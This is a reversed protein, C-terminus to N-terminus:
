LQGILLAILENIQALSTPRDRIATFIRKCLCLTRELKILHKKQETRERHFYEQELKEQLAVVVM